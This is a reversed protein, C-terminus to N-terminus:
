GTTNRLNVVLCATQGAKNAQIANTMGNPPGMCHRAESDSQRFKGQQNNQIGHKLKEFKKISL